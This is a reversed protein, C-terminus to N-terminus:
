GFLGSVAQEGKVLAGENRFIIEMRAQSGSPEFTQGTRPRLKESKQPGRAPGFRVVLRLNTDM